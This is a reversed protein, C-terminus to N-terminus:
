GAPRDGDNDVRVMMKDHICKGSTFGDCKNTKTFEDCTVFLFEHASMGLCTFFDRNWCVAGRM